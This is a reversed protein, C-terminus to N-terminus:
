IKSVHHNLLDFFLQVNKPVPIQPDGWTIRSSTTGKKIEIYSYLNGPRNFVEDTIKLTELNSMLQEMDERSLRGKKEYTKDILGSGTFVIGNEFICHENTMGTVGGGRGFIIQMDPYDLPTYKSSKCFPFLSALLATLLLISKKM